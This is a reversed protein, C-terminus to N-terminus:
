PKKKKGGFGAPQSTLGGLLDKGSKLPDEVVKGVSPVGGPLRGGIVADARKVLEAKGARVLADRLQKTLAPGDFVLRPQTIPGVLRLTTEINELVKMAESTVEPDLGFIGRGATQVRMGTTKVHISLDISERSATGEIRGAATGGRFQVPNNRNMSEQLKQLDVDAFEAKIEAIGPNRDFHGVVSISWPHESSKVAITVPLGATSPADSLNECLINSMGIQELPIRVGELSLRKIIVRPTPSWPALATLYELYAQPTQPPPPREKRGPLWQQAKELWERLGKGDNWYADLKALDAESVKYRNIDFPEPEPEPSTPLVRGPSARPEDFRVSSLTINDMVIRGLTLNFLGVKATMEGVAVRNRAPQAPDTMQLGRVSFLGSLPKLDIGALDVQAGNASTLSRTAVDNVKADQVFRLGVVSLAVVVLAAVVGPIRVYKARRKLVVAPDARKGVLLWETFRVWKRSHWDRFKPSKTDLELWTRRFRGVSSMVLLGLLAGLIPGLVIAGAVSYRSFDTVGVFPISGLMALLGAWHDQVWRGVHFLLPAAAFCVTKGLLSSLVFAGININIILAAILLFVHVGYFGPILGFTIGMAVSLLILPAAVDGRFVAILKKITGPLIM